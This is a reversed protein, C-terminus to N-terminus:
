LNMMGHFRIYFRCLSLAYESLNTTRTIDFKKWDQERANDDKSTVKNYNCM